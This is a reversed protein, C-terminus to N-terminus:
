DARAPAGGARGPPGGPRAAQPRATDPPAFGVSRVPVVVTDPLLFLRVASTDIVQAPDLFQSFTLTATLSDKVATQTLRPGTTDHPFVYLALALATDSAIRVSDWVERVERRRNGNQDQYAVVLYQGSPAPSLRFRGASDTIVRYVLSDPQLVAEVMANPLPKSTTWDLVRGGVAATPAPAGTMFTLVTGRQLRNNRLDQVGPLLQVRYVRGPQWGEKPRVAIRRRKWEVIPYNPSPSLLILKDLEADGERAGLNGQQIVETFVFEASRKPAITEALPDPYTGVLDPVARDLPGGPPPQINACAILLALLAGAPWRAAAGGRGAREAAM